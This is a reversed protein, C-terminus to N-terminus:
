RLNSWWLKGQENLETEFDFVPPPAYVLGTSPDNLYRAQRAVVIRESFEWFDMEGNFGMLWDKEHEEYSQCIDIKVVREDPSEYATDYYLLILVRLSKCGMEKRTLHQVLATPDYPVDTIALHSLNPFKPLLDWDMGLELDMVDLHTISAYVPSLIFPLPIQGIFASIRRLKSVHQMSPHLGGLKVAGHWNVIDQVNLCHELVKSANDMSTGLYINRTYKGFKQLIDLCESEGRNLFFNDTHLVQYLFPVTRNLHGYTFDTRPRPLWILAIVLWDRFRRATLQLELCCTTPTLPFKISDLAAIEVIVQELEAPFFPPSTDADGDCASRM